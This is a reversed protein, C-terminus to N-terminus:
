LRALSAWWRSGYFLASWQVAFWDSPVLPLGLRPWTRAYRGMLYRALALDMSFHPGAIDHLVGDLTFLVKRFMLLSSPFPVGQLALDDLVRTLDMLDPIAKWILATIARHICSAIAHEQEPSSAGDSLALIENRMGSADRLALMILLLAVHRRQTYTLEETLAWDLIVINGTHQDYLLNGAHPDAHFLTSDGPSFLPAGILSETLQSAICERQWPTLRTAAETIKIGSEESMATVRPACLPAILRPTRVGAISAYLESAEILTAQERLFDVEHELLRRVESFTDYLVNAAIGYEAHRSELHEATRQLLEMDEAFCAPIHPKLVKFVGRECRRSQPNRWTFRLVASVTAESLLEEDIEVSYHHLESGLQGAIIKRIESASADSISNELKILESRLSPSLNRNRALVQGLKQFGPMRSILRLLRVAAPTETPLEFQEILKPALRQDSIRALTFRLAEQVLPRWHAYADPVFAEGPLFELVSSAFQERIQPGLSSQLLSLLSDVREAQPVETNGFFAAAQLFADSIPPNFIM